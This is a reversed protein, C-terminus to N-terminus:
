IINTGTLSINTCILSINTCILVKKIRMPLEKV